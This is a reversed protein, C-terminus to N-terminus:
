SCLVAGIFVNWFHVVNNKNSKMETLKVEWWHQFPWKLFFFCVLVGFILAVMVRERGTQKRGGVESKELSEQEVTYKLNLVADQHSALKKICSHGTVTSTPKGRVVEWKLSVKLDFHLGRTSLLWKDLHCKWQPTKNKKEGWKQRQRSSPTGVHFLNMNIEVSILRSLQPSLCCTPKDHLAKTNCWM